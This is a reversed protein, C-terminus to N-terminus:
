AKKMKKAGKDVEPKEFLGGSNIVEIEIPDLTRRAYRNKALSSTYGTQYSRISDLSNSSITTSPKAASLTAHARMEDAALNVTAKPNSRTNLYSLVDCKLLTQHPGSSTIQNPDLKYQNILNRVSPGMAHSKRLASAIRNTAM